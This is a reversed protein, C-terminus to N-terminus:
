RQFRYAEETEARGGRQERETSTFTWTADTLSMGFVEWTLLSTLKTYRVLLLEALNRTSSQTVQRNRQRNRKAAEEARANQLIWHSIKEYGRCDSLCAGKWTNRRQFLPFLLRLNFYIKLSDKWQLQSSCALTLPYYHFISEGRCSTQDIKMWHVEWSFVVESMSLATEGKVDRDPLIQLM